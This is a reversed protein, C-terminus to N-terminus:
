RRRRGPIRDTGGEKQRGEEVGTEIRLDLEAAITIRRNRHADCKGGPLRLPQDGRPRGSSGAIMFAEPLALPGVPPKKGGRGGALGAFTDALLKSFLFGAQASDIHASLVVRRAPTTSGFRGVVNM